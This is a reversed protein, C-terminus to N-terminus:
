AAKLNPLYFAVDVAEIACLSLIYSAHNAISIEEDYDSNIELRELFSNALKAAEIQEKKLAAVEERVGQRERKLDAASYIRLARVTLHTAKRM